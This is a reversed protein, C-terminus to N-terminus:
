QVVKAILVNMQKEKSWFEPHLNSLAEQYDQWKLCTKRKSHVQPQLNSIEEQHGQWTPIILIPTPLGLLLWLSLLNSKELRLASAAILAECSTAASTSCHRLPRVLTVAVDIMPPQTLSDLSIRSSRLNPKALPPAMLAAYRTAFTPQRHSYM